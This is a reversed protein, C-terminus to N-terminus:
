WRTDSGVASHAQSLEWDRYIPIPYNSKCFETWKTGSNQTENGSASRVDCLKNKALTMLIRKVYLVANGINEGVFLLNKDLILSSSNRSRLSLWVRYGATKRNGAHRCDGSLGDRGRQAYFAARKTRGTVKKWGIWSRRCSEKISLDMMPCTPKEM